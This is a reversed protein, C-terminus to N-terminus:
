GMGNIKERLFCCKWQLRLTIARRLQNISLGCFCRYQFCIFLKNSLPFFLSFSQIFAANKIIIIVSVRDLYLYTLEQRKDATAADLQHFAAAAGHRADDAQNM